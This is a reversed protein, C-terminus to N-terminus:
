IRLPKQGFDRWGSSVRTDSTSGAHRADDTADAHLSINISLQLNMQEARLMPINEDDLNSYNKHRMCFTDIALTSLQIPDINWFVSGHYGFIKQLWLTFRLTYAMM